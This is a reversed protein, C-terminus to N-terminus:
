VTPERDTAQAEALRRTGARIGFPLLAFGAGMLVLTLDRYLSFWQGGVALAYWGLVMWAGVLAAIGWGVALFRLTAARYRPGAGVAALATPLTCIVLGAVAAGIVYALDFASM